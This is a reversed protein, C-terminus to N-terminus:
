WLEQYIQAEAAEACLPRRDLFMYIQTQFTSTGKLCFIVSDPDNAVSHGIIWDERVGQGVM